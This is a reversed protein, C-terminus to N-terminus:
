TETGVTENLGGVVAEVVLVVVGLKNVRGEAVECDFGVLVVIFGSALSGAWFKNAVGVGAGVGETVTGTGACGAVGLKKALDVGVVVGVEVVFGSGEEVAVLVATGLKKELGTVGASGVVVVGLGVAAGAGVNENGVLLGVGTVVVPVVEVVFDVNAKGLTPPVPGPGESKAAGLGTSCGL